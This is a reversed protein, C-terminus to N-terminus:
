STTKNEKSTQNYRPLTFRFAHWDPQSNDYFLKGGHKEIISRSICLGLGMGKEKNTQYPKFIDSMTADIGPGNDIVSIEVMGNGDLRSQLIIKEGGTVSKNLADMSNRMLNILVQEIQVKEALILCDACELQYGIGIHSNKLEWELSHCVDLLLQDVGTSEKRPKDDRIYHRIQHIIHGARHAQETARKLLDIIEPSKTASRSLLSEATGCYSILATLPQNLEHAMTAAMEGMTNIRMHRAMEQQYRQAEEEARIRNTIDRGEPIILVVQGTEDVVPKLSFDMTLTKNDIDTHTTEFRVLEGEAAKRIAKKLQGRAESSHSWWATDWFYRGVVESNTMGIIDLATQNAELLIGDPSLLGMFQFTSNFIARFRRESEVLAQEALVRDTIDESLGLLYAPRGSDDLIPVKKTHLLRRGHNATDINERPIDVTVRDALTKQDMGTFYDAQEKPFFDYDNRGLLQERPYGLLEEAARNVRVFRLEKADKIFVMDPINEVITNLFREMNGLAASSRLKETVDNQIILFSTTDGNADRIATGLCDMQLVRGDKCVFEIEARNRGRERLVPFERTCTLQSKSSFFDQIPRGLMEERTYGSQELLYRNISQIRGDIDLLYIYQMASDLLTDLQSETKQLSSEIQQRETLDLIIAVFVPHPSVAMYQLHVEVPYRSGDKRQHATNFECKKLTGSRLPELVANLKRFDYEPKIDLPTLQQMEELSYGLNECAGRNVLEFRLTSADFIYIENISEELIEGFRVADIGTRDPGPVDSADVTLDPEEEPSQPLNLLREQDVPEGM